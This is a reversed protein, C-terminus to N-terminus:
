LEADATWQYFIADGITVTTINAFSGAGQHTQSANVDAATTNNFVKGSTGTSPSYSQTTPATRKTVRFPTMVYNVATGAYFDHGGVYTGVAGPATTISYSKEYYRQCAILEEHYPRHNYATAFGGTELQVGTFYVNDDAGATGVPTYKAQVYLQTIDNPLTVTGQFRQWSTTLTAAISIQNAESTFSGILTSAQDTGKGSQLLVTFLDSAASYNAGKKAYFSLTVKKSQLHRCNETELVTYASIVNTGTNSATRGLQASYRFGLGTPVSTSRNFIGAATSAQNSCWRDASGYAITTTLAYTTGRQWFQFGGNIIHNVAGLGAGDAYLLTGSGTKSIALFNSGDCVIEVSDNQNDLTLTTAGDITETSNPDITVALVSSDTKKIICRFGDGLTAAATLSVTFAGGSSSCLITKNMDGAVVTYSSTKTVVRDDSLTDRLVWAANAADRQKLVGNTTDAWWMYAYTTAPASSGSMLSGLAQLNSNLDTRTAPFTQNAIVLDDQSM